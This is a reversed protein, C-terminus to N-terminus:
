VVRRVVRDQDVPVCLANSEGSFFDTGARRAGLECGKRKEWGAGGVGLDINPCGANWVGRLNSTSTSKEEPGSFMDEGSCASLSSVGSCGAVVFLRFESNLM